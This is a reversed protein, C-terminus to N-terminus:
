ALKLRMLPSRKRKVTVPTSKVPVAKRRKPPPATRVDYNNDEDEDNDEDIDYYDPRVDNDNSVYTPDQQQEKTPLQKWADYVAVISSLSPFLHQLRNIENPNIKVKELKRGADYMAFKPHLHSKLLPLSDFPYGHISYDTPSPPNANRDEKVDRHLLMMQKMNELPVM